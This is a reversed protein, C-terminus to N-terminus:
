GAPTGSRDGGLVGLWDAAYHELADRDGADSSYQLEIKKIVRGNLKIVAFGGSPQHGYDASWEGDEHEVTLM